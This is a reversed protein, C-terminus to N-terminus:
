ENWNSVTDTLTLNLKPSIFDRMFHLLFFFDCQFILFIFTVSIESINTTKMNGQREVGTGKSLGRM